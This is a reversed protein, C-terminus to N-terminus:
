RHAHQITEHSYNRTSFRPNERAETRTYSYVSRYHRTISDSGTTCIARELLFHNPGNANEHGWVVLLSTPLSFLIRTSVRYFSYSIKSDWGVSWGSHNKAAFNFERISTYNRYVNYARSSRVPYWSGHLLSAPILQNLSFSYLKIVSVNLKVSFRNAFISLLLLPPSPCYFNAFILLSLDLFLHFWPFTSPLPAPPFPSLLSTLLSFFFIILYFCSSTSPSPIDPFQINLTTLLLHWLSPIILSVFLCFVESSLGILIGTTKWVLAWVSKDRSDALASLLYDQFLGVNRCVRTRTCTPRCKCQVIYM